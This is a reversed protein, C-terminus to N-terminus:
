ENKSARTFSQNQVSAEMMAGKVPSRDDTTGNVDLGPGLLLPSLANGHYKIALLHDCWLIRNTLALIEKHPM